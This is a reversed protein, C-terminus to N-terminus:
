NLVKHKSQCASLLECYKSFSTRSLNHKQIIDKFWVPLSNNFKIEMVVLNPSMMEMPGDYDLSTASAYTLQRDFTVRLRDQFKGVLAQRQYQVLFRPKFPGQQERMIMEDRLAQAGSYNSLHSLSEMNKFDPWAIQLRDKIIVSDQRRKLEFFVDGSPKQGYVRARLKFRNIIGALKEYYCRWNPTDYYLTRVTYDKNAINRVYPDWELQHKLLTDLISQAGSANLIYKFEFRQFHLGATEM